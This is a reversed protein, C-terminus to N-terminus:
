SRKWFFDIGALLVTTGLVIALDVRPVWIFLIGLFGVLMAYAILKLIMDTM